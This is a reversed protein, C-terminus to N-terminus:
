HCQFIGLNLLSSGGEILAEHIIGHDMSILTVDVAMENVQSRAM